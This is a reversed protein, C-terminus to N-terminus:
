EHDEKTDGLLALVDDLSKNYHSNGYEELTGLTLQEHDLGKGTHFGLSGNIWSSLMVKRTKKWKMKEVRKKLTAHDKSLYHEFNNTILNVLNSKNKIEELDFLAKVSKRFEEITTNPKM